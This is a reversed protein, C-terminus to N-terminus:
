RVKGGDVGPAAADVAAARRKERRQKRGSERGKFDLVPVLRAERLEELKFGLLQDAKGDHFVLGWDGDQGQLVGRFNKRSGIPLKLTLSVEQGVHRSFDGATRLPRDLGPSSVELREYDIGDVELAFLLQRTVQECDDVTIFMGEGSPYVQGAIRDITIRLLGRPAHEVDVLEYHLGSVTAEIAARRGVGPAALPAARPPTPSMTSLNVSPTQALISSPM